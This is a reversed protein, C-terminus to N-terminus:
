SAVQATPAAVLLSSAPVGLAKAIDLLESVSFDQRGALKRSFTSRSIGSAESVVRSPIQRRAMVARIEGAVAARDPHQESQSM